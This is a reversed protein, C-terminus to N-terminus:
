ESEIRACLWWRISRPPAGRPHCGPGIGANRRRCGARCWKCSSCISRAKCCPPLLSPLRNGAPAAVRLPGPVARPHHRAARRTRRLSAPTAKLSLKVDRPELSTAAFMKVGVSFVLDKEWKLDETVHPLSLCFTRFWHLGPHGALRGNQRAGTASTWKSTYFFPLAKRWINKLYSKRFGFQNRDSRSNM